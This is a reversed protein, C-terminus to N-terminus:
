EYVLRLLLDPLINCFIEGGGVPARTPFLFNLIWFVFNLSIGFGLIWARGPAGPMPLRRGMINPIQLTRSNQGKSKSTQNITSGSFQVPPKPPSHSSFTICDVASHFLCAFFVTPFELGFHGQFGDFGGPREVFQGPMKFHM